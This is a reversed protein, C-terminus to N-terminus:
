TLSGDFAASGENRGVEALDPRDNRNEAPEPGQTFVSAVRNIQM